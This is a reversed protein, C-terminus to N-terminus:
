VLRILEANSGLAFGCEREWFQMMDHLDAKQAEIVDTDASSIRGDRFSLLFDKAGQLVGDMQRAKHRLYADDERKCKRWISVVNAETMYIGHHALAEAVVSCASVESKTAANRTPALNHEAVISNVTQWIINDRILNMLPDRGRAKKERKPCTAASVIYDQLWHPLPDGIRTLFQAMGCLTIHAREYGARALKILAERNSRRRHCLVLSLEPHAFFDELRWWRWNLLWYADIYPTPTPALM